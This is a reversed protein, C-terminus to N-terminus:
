PQLRLTLAGTERLEAARSVLWDLDDRVSIYRGSLADADGAALRLCLRAAADPTQADTEAHAEFGPLWRRGADSSGIARPMGTRVFGPDLALVAIGYERTEEAVTETLRILAAKAANYATLYPFPRSGIHSVLNIIRGRRRAVM